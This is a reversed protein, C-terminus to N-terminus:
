GEINDIFQQVDAATGSLEFQMLVPLQFLASIKKAALAYNPGWNKNGSSTISKIRGSNEELFRLTSAPIEGFGTTYTILHGEALPASVQDIKQINWDRQLKLRNVFREVNGTKSDYYICTM